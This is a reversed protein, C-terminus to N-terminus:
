SWRPRSGFFPVGKYIQYACVFWGILSLLPAVKSNTRSAGRVLVIDGHQDIERELTTANVPSEGRMVFRAHVNQPMLPLWTKRSGDRLVRRAEYSFVGLVALLPREPVVDHCFRAHVYAADASAMNARTAHEHAVPTACAM